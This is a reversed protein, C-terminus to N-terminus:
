AASSAEGLAQSWVTDVADVHAAQYPQCWPPASCPQMTGPLTWRWTARGNKPLGRNAMKCSQLHWQYMREHHGIFTDTEACPKLPLSSLSIHM